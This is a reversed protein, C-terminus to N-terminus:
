LKEVTLNERKAKEQVYALCKNYHNWNSKVDPYAPKIIRYICEGCKFTDYEQSQVNSIKIMKEFFGFNWPYVNGRSDINLDFKKM